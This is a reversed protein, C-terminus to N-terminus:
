EAKIGYLTFTSGIAYTLSQASFIKIKNIASNSRWQNTYGISQSGNQGSGRSITTKYTTSNSYNIINIIRTNPKGSNAALYGCDAYTVNSGRGTIVASGSGLLYTNSYNSGTDDNFQLSLEFGGGSAVITNCVLVLDTYSGSISSFTVSTQASSLTSTAICDYTTTM